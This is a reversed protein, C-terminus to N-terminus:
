AVLPLSLTLRQNERLATPRYGRAGRLTANFMSANETGASGGSLSLFLSLLHYRAM